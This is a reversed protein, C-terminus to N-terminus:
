IELALGSPISMHTMFMAPETEQVCLREMQVCMWYVERM